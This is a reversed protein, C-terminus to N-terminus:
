LPAYSKGARNWMLCTLRTGFRKKLAAAHANGGFLAFKSWGEQGCATGISTRWADNVGNLRWMIKAAAGALHAPTPEDVGLVPVNARQCRQILSSYAMALEHHGVPRKVADIHNFNRGSIYSALMGINPTISDSDKAYYAEIFIVQVGWQVLESISAVFQTLHVLDDHKDGIFVGVPAGPTAPVLPFTLYPM